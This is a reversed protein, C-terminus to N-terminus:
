CAFLVAGNANAAAQTVTPNPNGQVIRLTRLDIGNPLAVFASVQGAVSMARSPNLQTGTPDAADRGIVARAEQTVQCKFAAFPDSLVKVALENKAAALRDDVTAGVLKSVADNYGAMQQEIATNIMGPVTGNVQGATRSTLWSMGGVGVAVAATAGMTWRVWGPATKIRQGVPPRAARAVVAGAPVVHQVVQAPQPVTHQAPQAPQPQQAPQPVVPAPQQHAVPGGPAGPAPPPPPVQDAPAPVFAWGGAYPVAVMGAPAQPAVQAPHGLAAAQQAYWQDAPSPGVASQQGNVTTMTTTM